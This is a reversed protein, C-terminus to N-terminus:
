LDQNNVILINAPTRMVNWEDEQGITQGTIFFNEEVVNFTRSELGTITITDTTITLDPFTRNLDAIEELALELVAIQTKFDADFVNLGVLLEGNFHDLRSTAVGQSNAFSKILEIDLTNKNIKILITRSNEVDLTAWYESETEVLGTPVIATEAQTFIVERFDYDFTNAGIQTKKILYLKQGDGDVETALILGGGTENIRMQRFNMQASITVTEMQTIDTLPLTALFPRDAGDAMTNSMGCIYFAFGNSAMDEPSIFSRGSIEVVGIATLTPDYLILHTGSYESSEILNILTYIFPGNSHIGTPVFEYGPEGYLRANLVENNPQIGLVTQDLVSALETQGFAQIILNNEPTITTQYAIQSENGPEVGVSQVLTQSTPSSLKVYGYQRNFNFTITPVGALDYKSDALSIDDESSLFWIESESPIIEPPEIESNNTNSMKVLGQIKGLNMNQIKITM